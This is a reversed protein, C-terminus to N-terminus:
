TKSEFWLSVFALETEVQRDKLIRLADEWEEKIRSRRM